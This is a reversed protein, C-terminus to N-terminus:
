LTTLLLRIAAFTVAFSWGSWFTFLVNRGPRWFSLYEMVLGVCVPAIFVSAGPFLRHHILPAPWVRSFAFGVAAGGLLSWIIIASRSVTDNKAIPRRWDNTVSSYSRDFYNGALDPLMEFCFEIALEVATQSLFEFLFQLIVVHLEEM